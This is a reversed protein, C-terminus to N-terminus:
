LEAGGGGRSCVRSGRPRRDGARGARRDGEGPVAPRGPLHLPYKLEGAIARERLARHFAACPAGRRERGPTGKQDGPVFTVRFVMGLSAALAELVPLANERLGERCAADRLHERSSASAAVGNVDALFRFNAAQSWRGKTVNADRLGTCAHSCKTVHGAVTSAMDSDAFNKDSDTHRPDAASGLLGPMKGVWSRM